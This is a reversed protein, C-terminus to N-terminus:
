AGGGLQAGVAALADALREYQRTLPHDPYADAFLTEGYGDALEAAAPLEAALEAQYVSRAQERAAEDVGGDGVMTYALLRRATSLGAVTDVAKPANVLDARDTRTMMLVTDSSALAVATENNAGAHTDLLLTDLALRELLSEFAENLLGVDYGRTLIAEVKYSRNCAPVAWLAGGAKEAGQDATPIPQITDELTCRGILYDTFSIWEPIGTLNLLSHVAPSQLDTDVVAVREGRRALVRALNVATTSKGTGGRYSYLTVIQPM